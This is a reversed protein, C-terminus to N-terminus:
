EIWRSNRLGAVARRRWRSRVVAVLAITLIVLPVFEPAALMSGLVIELGEFGILSAAAVWTWRAFMSLRDTARGISARVDGITPITPGQVVAAAGHAAGGVWSELLWYETHDLAAIM